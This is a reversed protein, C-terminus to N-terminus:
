FIIHANLIIFHLLLKAIMGTALARNKNFWQAPLSVSAHWALAGGIGFLLGQSLYIQWLENAFSACILGM